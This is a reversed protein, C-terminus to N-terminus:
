QALEMALNHARKIVDSGGGFLASHLRRKGAGASKMSSEVETLANLGAYVTGRVGPIDVGLGNHWASELQKWKRPLDEIRGPRNNKEPLNYVGELFNRYLDFSMPASQMARYDDVVDVFTQRAVDINQLVNDIQAIDNQTHRITFQKGTRRADSQAFGLTNACVVRVNTFMGGFSTRGDHGLYGVINRHITDGPVVEHNSGRLRATFAVKAGGRLVVVTDMDVEERIAEAFRLLTTNQIPKYHDSAVGLIAKTDPRWIARRDELPHYVDEIQGIFPGDEIRREEKVYLKTTSVPFLAGARNFAEGAPMTGEVVEGLNHWAREGNLMIGSTFEHAM